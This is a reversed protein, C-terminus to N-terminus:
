LGFLGWFWSLMDIHTVLSCGPTEEWQIRETGRWKLKASQGAAARLVDLGEWRTM